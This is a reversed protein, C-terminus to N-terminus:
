PLSIGKENLLKRYYNVKGQDKWDAFILSLNKRASAYDPYQQLLKMCLMVAEDYKKQMALVVCLDNQSDRYSPDLAISKKLMTEAETINKEKLRLLGLNYYAMANDTHLKVEENLYQAAKEFQGEDMYLKGINNRVDKLGPNLNLAEEYEKMADTPNHHALWYTGMSRHAFSAHPSTNVTRSWYNFEDAYNRSNCYTLVILVLAILSASIAPLAKEFHAHKLLDTELCLLLFGMLPFYLRHELFVSEYDDATRLIAPILFLGLWAIGLWMYRTRKEKSSFLFYLLAALTVLGFVYSTDTLVPFTSLNFPLLMKGILQILAPLNKFLNEITFKFPLGVTEGLAIKRILFFIVVLIIWSIIPITQKLVVQRIPEKQFATSFIRVILFYLVPLLIATEKTLLACLFMLLHLALSRYNRNEIYRIFFLISALSFLALLSDNRGPIWAVAQALAPHVAFFFAVFFSVGPNFKLKNLLVYFLLVSALHILINTLHFGILSNGSILADFYFSLTLLPRYYLDESGPSLGFVGSTFIEKVAHNGNIFQNIQEILVTDDYYTLQYHLTPIYVISAAAALIAWSLPSSLFFSNRRADKAKFNARQNEKQKM